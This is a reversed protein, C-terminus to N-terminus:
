DVSQRYYSDRTDLDALIQGIRSAIIFPLCFLYFTCSDQKICLGPVLDKLRGTRRAQYMSQEDFIRRFMEKWIM